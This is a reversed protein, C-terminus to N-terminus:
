TYNVQEDTQGRITTDIRMFRKREDLHDVKLIRFYESDFKIYVNSYADRDLSALYRIYFEHTVEQAINSGDFMVKGKVTVLKAWVAEILTFTEDFDVTNDAPQNIDREYLEIYNRMDGIAQAKVTQKTSGCKM